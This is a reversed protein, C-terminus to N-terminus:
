LGCVWLRLAVVAVLLRRCCVVVVVPVAVAAPLGSIHNNVRTVMPLAAQM